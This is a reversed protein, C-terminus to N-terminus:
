IHSSLRYLECLSKYLGIGLKAGATLTMFSLLEKHCHRLRPGEPRM